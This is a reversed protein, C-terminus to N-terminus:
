GKYGFMRPLWLVVDPVFTIIGLAVILMFLFPLVNRVISGISVKTINSTVFLLLGYPPTLLGIMLNVTVFVGFHVIDIGLLKATPILIPVIVLLVTSADLLCGLILLIVNVALLYQFQTMQHAALIASLANPLDERTVVYNFVLAGAIMMGVSATSRASSM